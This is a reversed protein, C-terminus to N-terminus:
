PSGGTTGCSGHGGGPPRYQAAIFQTRQAPNFNDDSVLVLLCGGGPLAPGWAMGELNDVPVGLGTFDAVLEKPPPHHNGPQLAALGRTDSGKRTDIRYLRASFGRGTSYARELVLLHHPGDALVESVGNLEPGLPLRRPQSAADPQYAIQRLPEGSGVDIATFRVPAGPAAASAPPGDQLWPLEMALWATRGDPALALGELSGNRRPGAGASPVFSPPLPIRRLHRGDAHAVRLQPGFGRAFDGESTWLFQQAGPLWRVAEADPVDVGPRARRAPAFPQGDPAQLSRMGTIEPRAQGREPDLHLRLAYVRAPGHVARDDSILLYDGSRPDQDIGSIGGFPSGGWETGPAIHATALIRLGSAPGSWPSPRPACGALALALVVWALAPRWRLAVPAPAAPGLARRAM